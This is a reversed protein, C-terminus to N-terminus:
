FGVVVTSAVISGDVQATGAVDVAAGVTLDAETAASMDTHSLAAAGYEVTVQQGDSDAIEMVLSDNEANVSVITGLAVVAADSVTFEVDIQPTFVFGGNGTQVLHVDSLDIILLSDQGEPLELDENIFLRGNATSHVDTIVQDPNEKLILEPNSITLRTQTYTGAPIEVSSLVESLETLDLLNVRLEGEFIIEHSEPVNQKVLEGEGEGEGEGESGEEGQPVLVIQEVTIMFSEMEDLSVTNEGKAQSGSATLLTTVKATGNNSPCGAMAIALFIVVVSAIAFRYKELKSM